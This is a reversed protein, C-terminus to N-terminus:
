STQESTESKESEPWDNAKWKHGCTTCRYWNKEALLTKIVNLAGCKKCAMKDGRFGIMKKNSPWTPAMVDEIEQWKVFVEDGTTLGVGVPENDLIGRVGQNTVKTVKVWIPEKKEFRKKVFWGVRLDSTTFKGKNPYITTDDM